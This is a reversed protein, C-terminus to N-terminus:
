QIPKTGGYEKYQIDILPYYVSSNDYYLEYIFHDALKVYEHKELPYKEILHVIDKSDYIAINCPTNPSIQQKIHKALKNLEEKDFQKWLVLVRYTRVGGHKKSIMIQYDVNERFKEKPKNTDPIALVDNKLWGIHTSRLWDPEWVIIKSWENQSEIILVKCSSDVSLYHVEKFLETATRNVLKPSKLSPESYLDSTKIVNCIIHAPTEIETNSSEANQTSNASQCAQMWIVVSLIMLYQKM